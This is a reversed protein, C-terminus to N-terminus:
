GFHAHWMGTLMGMVGEGHLHPSHPDGDRDSHQHHRRHLACWEIVPGQGAMSGFIALIGRLVPGSEYARHTFMRHFGVTIGLITLSYLGVMLILDVLKLGRGWCLYIGLFLSFFPVGVGFAMAAKEHFPKPTPFPSTGAPNVRISSFCNVRPELFASLGVATRKPPGADAWM